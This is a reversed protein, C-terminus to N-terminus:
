FNIGFDINFCGTNTDQFNDKGVNALGIDYSAGLYFIDFSLGCGLKVGADFRSFNDYYENGFSSYAERNEYDKIKGGVGCALYGGLFPEISIDSDTYIKYKLM